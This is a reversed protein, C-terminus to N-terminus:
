RYLSCPLFSIDSCNYTSENIGGIGLTIDGVGVTEVIGEGSIDKAPISEVGSPM